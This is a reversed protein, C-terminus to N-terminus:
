VVLCLDCDSAIMEIDFAMVIVRPLLKKKGRKIFFHNKFAFIFIFTTLTM